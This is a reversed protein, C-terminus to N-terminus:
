YETPWWDNPVSYSQVGGDMDKSLIGCNQVCPSARKANETIVPSELIFFNLAGGLWSTSYNVGEYNGTIYPEDCYYEDEDADPNEQKWSNFSVDVAKTGYLLETVLEQDLDNAAVFGYAINTQPNINVSPKFGFLNNM